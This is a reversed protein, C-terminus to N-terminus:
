NMKEPKNQDEKNADNKNRSPSMICTVEVIEETRDMNEGRAVECKTGTMNTAEMDDAKDYQMNEYSIKTEDANNRETHIEAECTTPTEQVANESGDPHTTGEPDVADQTITEAPVEEREVGHRTTAPVQSVTVSEEGAKLKVTRTGNLLGAAPGKTYKNLRMGEVKGYKSIVNMIIENGMEFPGDKVTASGTVLPLLTTGCLQSTTNVLPVVLLSLCYHLAVCRVPPASRLNM